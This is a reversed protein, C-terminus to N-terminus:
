RAERTLEIVDLADFDALQRVRTNPGLRGALYWLLPAPPSPGDVSLVLIRRTDRLPGKLLEDIERAQADNFTLRMPILRSKSPYCFLQSFLPNDVIPNVPWGDSEHYQSRILVPARDNRDVYELGAAWDGAGVTQRAPSHTLVFFNLAVLSLAMLQAATRPVITSALAGFCLAQGVAYPLYYRVLWLSAKSVRSGAAAVLIPATGLLAALIVEDSRAEPRLKLEAATSVALAVGALLCLMLPM